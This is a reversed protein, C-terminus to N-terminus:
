ESNYLHRGELLDEGLRQRVDVEEEAVLGLRRREGLRLAPVRLVGALDRQPHSLLPSPPSSLLPSPPHPPPPPHTVRGM